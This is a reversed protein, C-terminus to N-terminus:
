LRVVVKGFSAGRELQHLADNIQAAPFEADVPPQLSHQDVFAVLEELMARSGTEIGHLTVNRTVFQYTEVPASLGALLGIFAISGGLRVSRLSLDLNSGGVTEIVHDVGRGDSLDLAAAVVDADRYNVGASAGLARAQELKADSGSTVLVTAGLARAFLLAFLAVGGTGHVLVRDGPAVQCRRSLAHWATVAAVPLTAAEADSLARPAHVAEDQDVVVYEALVGRNVPGGVPAVYNEPTLPGDHWKPLFTPSVRDGRQFRTVQDGVAVVHGVADSVPTVPTKPRWGDIGNIVLLDRYNLSVAAVKVLMETSRPEPVATETPRLRDIGDGATFWATMQEPISNQQATM